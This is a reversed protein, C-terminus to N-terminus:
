KFEVNETLKHECKSLLIQFIETNDDFGLTEM